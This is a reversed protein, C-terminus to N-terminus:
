HAAVEKLDPDIQLRNLTVEYAAHPMQVNEM